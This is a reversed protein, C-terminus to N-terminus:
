TLITSESWSFSTITAAGSGSGSGCGTLFFRARRRRLFASSLYYELLNCKILVILLVLKSNKNFKKNFKKNKNVLPYFQFIIKFNFYSKLISIM